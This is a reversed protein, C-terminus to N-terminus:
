VGRLNSNFLTRVKSYRVDEMVPEIRDEKRAVKTSPLPGYDPKKYDPAGSGGNGFCM